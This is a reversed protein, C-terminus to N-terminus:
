DTVQRAEKLEALGMRADALYSLERDANQWQEIFARYRQRAQSTNGAKEYLRGLEYDITSRILFYDFADGAMYYLQTDILNRFHEYTQIARELDGALEYAQARLQHHRPYYHVMSPARQLESLAENSRNYAIALEARLLRYFHLYYADYDNTRIFDQIAAATSEAAAHNGQWLLTVGAVYDWLVRGPNITSAYVQSAYERAQSVATLAEEFKGQAALLRALELYARLAEIKQGADLAFEAAQRFKAGAERYRGEYIYSFGINKSVWAQQSPDVDLTKLMNERAGDADGQFLLTYGILLYIKSAWEPNRKLGAKCIEMAKDHQGAQTYIDWASDYANAIDPLLEM